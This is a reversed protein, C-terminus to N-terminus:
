VEEWVVIPPGWSDSEHKRTSVEVVGNKWMRVLVTKEANVWLRYNEPM